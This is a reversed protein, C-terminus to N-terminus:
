MSSNAPFNVGPWLRRFSGFFSGSRSGGVILRHDNEIIKRCGKILVWRERRWSLVWVHFCFKEGEFETPDAHKEADDAPGDHAEEKVTFIPEASVSGMGATKHSEAVNGEESNAEDGEKVSEGNSRHSDGGVGGANADDPEGDGEKAHGQDAAEGGPFLGEAM